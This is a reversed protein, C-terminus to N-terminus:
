PPWACLHNFVRAGFLMPPFGPAGSVFAGLDVLNIHEGFGSNGPIVDWRVNFNPNPPSTNLRRVPAIYRGLDVIDVENETPSGGVLDLPWGNTGCPDQDRNTAPNFVHNESTGVFGDGDCDFSVAGGPLAENVLTDGDDDSSAFSGDLREPRSLPNLPNSGCAIEATDHVGDLDDDPGIDGVARCASFESSNGLSDTAIATVAAGPSAPMGLTVMFGVDGGSNTSVSASGLASQGEGNGSPDCSPSAFFDLDFDSSPTSNLSGTVTTELGNTTASTLVPFNQLNNAGSDGDDPDNATVGSAGLDIGLASNSHISNRGVVTNGVAAGSIRIGTGNESIVNTQGSVLGGGIRNNDSTVDIGDLCRRVQLGQIIDSDQSLQFCDFSNTQGDIIVGAGVGSINDTPGLTPLPSTLMVSLPMGPTFEENQFHISDSGSAGAAGLNLVYNSEQVSLARNLGGPGVGGKALLMGERLTVRTDFMDGPGVVDSPEDVVISAGTTINLVLNGTQGSFGGAQIRYTSSGTYNIVVGSQLAIAGFDDNCGGPELTLGGYGSGTYVALFTDFDSGLTDFVVTGTSPPANWFYWVTSNIAGCPQPEGALQELTAGATDVAAVIDSTPSPSLVQIANAFNDNLPAGSATDPAANQLVAASFACVLAPILLWRRCLPTTQM